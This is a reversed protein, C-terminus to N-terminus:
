HDRDYNEGFLGDSEDELRKCAYRDASRATLVIFLIIGIILM